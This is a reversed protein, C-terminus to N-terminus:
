VVTLYPVLYMEPHKYKYSHTADTAPCETTLRALSCYAKVWIFCQLSNYLVASYATCMYSLCQKPGMNLAKDNIERLWM